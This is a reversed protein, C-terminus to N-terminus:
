VAGARRQCSQSAVEAADYSYTFLGGDPDTMTQRQKLHDYANTVIPPRAVQRAIQKTM